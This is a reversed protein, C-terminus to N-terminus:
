AMAASVVGRALLQHNASGQRSRFEVPHTHINGGRTLVAKHAAHDRFARHFVEVGIGIGGGTKLHRIEVEIGGIKLGGGLQVAPVVGGIRVQGRERRRAPLEDQLM